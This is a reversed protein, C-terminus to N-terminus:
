VQSERALMNRLYLYSFVLSLASIVMAVASAYGMKFNAFGEKYMTVALTESMRAPGGGTMVWITDFVKFSNIVALLSAIVVYPMLMPIIIRTALVFGAAGDLTAAEVPEKPLNQLGVLFIMVNIGTAQWTYAGIMAYTNYPQVYLWNVKLAGLGITDLLINLAGQDRLVFGFVIGAASASITAPIYICIQMLKAGKLGSIAYAFFFGLGVPLVVGLVMWKLTNVFPRTFNTDTVLKFFNALGIFTPATMGNWDTFALLTTYLMPLILFIGVMLAAPAVYLYAERQKPDSLPPM